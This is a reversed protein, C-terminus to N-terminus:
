IPNYNREPKCHTPLVQRATLKNWVWVTSSATMADICDRPMNPEYGDISRVIPNVGWEFFMWPVAMGGPLMMVAIALVLYIVGDKV